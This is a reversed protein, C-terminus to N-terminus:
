ICGFPSQLRDIRNTLCIYFRPPLLVLGGEERKELVIIVPVGIRLAFDLTTGGTISSHEGSLIRVVVTDRVGVAVQVPQRIKQLWEQEVM